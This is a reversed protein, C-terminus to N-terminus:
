VVRLTVEAKVDGRKAVDAIGKLTWTRELRAGDRRRGEFSPGLNPISFEFPFQQQPGAPVGVKKSVVTRQNCMEFRVGNGSGEPDSNSYIRTERTENTADFVGGELVSGEAAEVYEIGLLELRIETAEFEENSTLILQGSLKGGAPFEGSSLNISMTASPARLGRLLGM